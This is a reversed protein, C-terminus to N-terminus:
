RLGSMVLLVRALPQVLVVYTACVYLFPTHPIINEHQLGYWLERFSNAGNRSKIYLSPYTIQM